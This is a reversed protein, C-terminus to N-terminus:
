LVDVRGGDAFGIRQGTDDALQDLARELTRGGRERHVRETGLAGAGGLQGVELAQNTAELSLTEVSSPRASRRPAVRRSSGAATRTAPARRARATRRAAGPGADSPM